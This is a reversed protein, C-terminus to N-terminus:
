KLLSFKVWLQSLKQVVNETLVDFSYSYSWGTILPTGTQGGKLLNVGNCLQAFLVKFGWLKSSLINFLSTNSSISPIPLPM